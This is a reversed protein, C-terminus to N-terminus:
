SSAKVALLNKNFNFSRVKHIVRMLGDAAFIMFFPMIPFRYRIHAILIAHLAFIYIMLGWVTIFERWRSANIWCGALGLLIVPIYCLATAWKAYFPSDTQFPRWMNIIKKVTIKVFQQPHHGIFEFGKQYLYSDAQETYLAGQYEVPYSTDRDAIWDGGTTGGTVRPNNALYFTHGSTTTILAHRGFLLQNRLIWPGVTLSFCFAYIFAKAAKNKLPEKWFLIGIPVMPFYFILVDRTLVALGAFFAAGAVCSTKKEFLGRMLFYFSVLLFFVFLNESMISTTERISPYDLAVIFSALWAVKGDFMRAAIAFLVACSLAGIIAQAFQIGAPFPIKMKIFLATFLPYLPPRRATPAGEWQFGRGQALNQAIDYFSQSDASLRTGQGSHYWVGLFFIRLLLALIFIVFIKKM